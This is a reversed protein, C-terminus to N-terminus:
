SAASVAPVPRFQAPRIGFSLAAQTRRDARLQPILDGVLRELREHVAAVLRLAAEQPEAACLVAIRKEGEAAFRQLRVGSRIHLARASAVICAFAM